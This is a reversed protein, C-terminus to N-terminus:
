EIIHLSTIYVPFSHFSIWFNWMLICLLLPSCFQKHVTTIHVLFLITHSLSLIKFSPPKLLHTFFLFIGWIELVSHSVYVSPSGYGHNWDDATPRLCFFFNPFNFFYVIWLNLFMHWALVPQLMTFDLLRFTGLVQSMKRQGQIWAEGCVQWWGAELMRATGILQQKIVTNTNLFCCSSHLLRHIGV